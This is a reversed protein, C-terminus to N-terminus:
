SATVNVGLNTITALDPPYQCIMEGYDHFVRVRPFRLRLAGLIERVLEPRSSLCQVIASDRTTSVPRPFGQVDDNTIMPSITLALIRSRQVRFGMSGLLAKGSNETVGIIPGTHLRMASTPTYWGYVGCTCDSDPVSHPVDNDPCSPEECMRMIQVEDPDVRGNPGAVAHGHWRSIICTANMTDNRWEADHSVSLLHVINQPEGLRYTERYSPVVRNYVSLMNPPMYRLGWSRYGRLTGPILTDGQGEFMTTM